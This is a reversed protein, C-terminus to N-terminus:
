SSNSDELYLSLISVLCLSVHSGPHNRQRPDSLSWGQEEEGASRWMSEQQHRRPLLAASSRGHWWHHLRIRGVDVQKAWCWRQCWSHTDKFTTSNPKDASSISLFFHPRRTTRLPFSPVSLCNLLFDKVPLELTTLKHVTISFSYCWM